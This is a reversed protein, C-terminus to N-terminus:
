FDYILRRFSKKRRIKFMKFLGCFFYTYITIYNLNVKNNILTLIVENGKIKLYKIILISVYFRKKM